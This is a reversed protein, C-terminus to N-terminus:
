AANEKGKVYEIYDRGEFKGVMIYMFKGPAKEIVLDYRGLNDVVSHLHKTGSRFQEISIPKGPNAVFVDYAERLTTGEKPVNLRTKTRLHPQQSELTRAM